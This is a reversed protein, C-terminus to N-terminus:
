KRLLLYGDRALSLALCLMMAGIILDIFRWIKPKTLVPALGRAGYGLGYFWVLSVTIAGLACATRAAGEYRTAIGGIIVVTDLIVHPNLLSVALATMAISARSIKDAEALDLGKAHRAARLSRIGYVSLFAAGAFAIAVNLLKSGALLAGLGATGLTVMLADGFFCITAVLFVAQRKLGQRLLYSNQAGIAIILTSM